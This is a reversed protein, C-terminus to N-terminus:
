RHRSPLFEPIICAGFSTGVVDRDKSGMRRCTVENQTIVGLSGMGLAYTVIRVLGMINWRKRPAKDYLFHWGKDLALDRSTVRSSRLLVPRCSRRGSRRKEGHGNVITFHPVVLARTRTRALDREPLWDRRRVVNREAIKRGGLMRFLRRQICHTADVFGHDAIGRETRQFVTFGATEEPTILPHSGLKSRTTYPRDLASTTSEHWAGEEHRVGVSLGIDKRM